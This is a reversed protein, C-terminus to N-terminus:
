GCLSGKTYVGVRKIFLFLGETYAYVRKTYVFAFIQTCLYGKTYMSLKEIYVFVQQVNLFFNPLLYFFYM